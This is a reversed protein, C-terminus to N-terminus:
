NPKSNKNSEVSEGDLLKKLDDLDNKDSNSEKIEM